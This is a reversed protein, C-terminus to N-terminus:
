RYRRLFAEILRRATSSSAVLDVGHAYGSIVEAEKTGPTAAALRAVDPAFDRDGKAALYLVPVRLRHASALADALDASGSVSIVGTVPPSVNAGASIVASGGLSAGLLFVKRAGLARAEKVAAAVDGGYRQNAPYHRTQSEGSNRLDFALAFYGLGGALRKAYPVWQCLNGNRQHALVVATPGDGFRHGVLRTGDAAHFQLDGTRPTCGDAASAGATLGAGTPLMLVLLCALTLRM